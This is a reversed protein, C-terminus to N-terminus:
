TGRGFLLMDSSARARYKFDADALNPNQPKRSPSNPAPRGIRSQMLSPPIPKGSPRTPASNRKSPSSFPSPSSLAPSSSVTPRKIGSHYLSNSPVPLFTPTTPRSVPTPISSITSSTANTSVSSRGESTRSHPRRVGTPIQSSSQASPPRVPRHETTPSSAAATSTMGLPRFASPAIPGSRRRVHKEKDKLPSPSDEMILVWGSTNGVPTKELDLSQAKSKLPPPRDPSPSRLSSKSSSASPSGISSPGAKPSPASTGRSVSGMRIRPVRTHIKQGLVEVRARMESLMQVGKSTGTTTSMGSHSSFNRNALPRASPARSTLPRGTAPTVNTNSRVASSYSHSPATSTASHPNFGAKHLLTAQGSSSVLSDTNRSISTNIPPLTKTPTSPPHDAFNRDSQAAASINEGDELVRSARSPTVSPPIEVPARDLAAALQEKLVSIEENADRLEDKLRQFDEEITAKDLLEHELLIKEELVKAYRQETDALSSSIARENRELDDNGMELERLQIKVQQYDQRITDLERQLSTTTTNHMTQLSMFKSKWEDKEQEAKAAKVKLDQQAKETRELERELEEELERSSVQFDDLEARTEALMDAVEMYKAKWDTHAHNPDDLTVTIKEGLRLADMPQLFATM